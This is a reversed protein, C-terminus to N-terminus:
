TKLARYSLITVMIKPSQAVCFSCVRGWVRPLCLCVSLKELIMQQHGSPRGEVGPPFHLCLLYERVFFMFLLMIKNVLYVVNSLSLNFMSCSFSCNTGSAKPLITLSKIQWWVDSSRVSATISLSCLPIDVPLVRPCLKMKVDKGEQM